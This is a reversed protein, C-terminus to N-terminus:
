AGAGGGYGRSLGMCGYGVSSVEIKGLFRNTM